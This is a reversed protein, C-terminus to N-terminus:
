GHNMGGVTVPVLAQPCITFFVRSPVTNPSGPTVEFRGVTFRVTDTEDAMVEELAGVMTAAAKLADKRTQLPATGAHAKEGLVEVTYRYLGQIGIVVGISVGAAELRPGQEIHAKVYAAVAFGLPCQPLGPTAALTAQLAEGVTIDDQDMLGLLDNLQRKGTFMLSGMCSPLRQEDIATAVGSVSVNASM